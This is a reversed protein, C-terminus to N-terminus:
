DQEDFINGLNYIKIQGRNYKKLDIINRTDFVIPTRMKTVIKGYNINSFENHDTLILILDANEIAKELTTLAIGEQNVYPDYVETTFGDEKLLNIIELAPSERVDGINGKYAAGFVAIKPSQIGAILQKVKSVIYKPMNSNVQRATLILRALEPLMSTIFYPDVAICHGGVGPGPKLINVRPHKNALAIVELADIHLKNCIKALENAFAINIDRFTNEMLKTM